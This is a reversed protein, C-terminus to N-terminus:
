RAQSRFGIPLSSPYLPGFAFLFLVSFKSTHTTLLLNHLSSLFSGFALFDPENYVTCLYLDEHNNCIEGLDLLLVSPVLDRTHLSFPPLTLGLPLVLRHVQIWFIRTDLESHHFVILGLVTGTSLFRLHASRTEVKLRIFTIQISM